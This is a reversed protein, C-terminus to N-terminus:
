KAPHFVTEYAANHAKRVEPPANEQILRFGIDLFREHGAPTNLTFMAAPGVGLAVFAHTTDRPIYAFDGQRARMQRDGVTWLWEGSVAFWLEDENLQYHPPAALGPQAVIYNVMMEGASEEGRLLLRSDRIPNPPGPPCDEAHVLKPTRPLKAMEARLRRYDGVSTVPLDLTPAARNVRHDAESM